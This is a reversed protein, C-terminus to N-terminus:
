LLTIRFADKHLRITNIAENVRAQLTGTNPWDIWSTELNFKFLNYLGRYFTPPITYSKHHNEFATQVMRTDVICFDISSKSNFRGNFEMKYYRPPTGLVSLEDYVELGREGYLANWLAGSTLNEGFCSVPLLQATSFDLPWLKPDQLDLWLVSINEKTFQYECDKVQALRSVAEGQVTDINCREPWGFPFLETMTTMVNSSQHEEIIRDHRETRHQPTHVEIEVVCDPLKLCFDAGSQPTSIKRDWVWILEGYARIEGLAASVNNFDPDRLITDVRRNLWNPNTRHVNELCKDTRQAVDRTRDDNGLILCLLPHLNNSDYALNQIGVSFALSLSQYRDLLTQRNMESM